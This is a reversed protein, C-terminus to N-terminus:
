FIPKDIQIFNELPNWGDNYFHYSSWIYDKIEAVMEARIPNSHIYNLCAIIYADKEIVNSKFRGQWVYGTYNYRNRFKQSYSLTIAQMIKSVNNKNSAGIVFHAHNDMIVFGYLKFEFRKRYKDLTGLLGKKDEDSKIVAQKNNGRITIHYVANDYYVRCIRGM